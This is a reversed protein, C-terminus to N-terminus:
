QYSDYFTLDRPSIATALTLRQFTNNPGGSLTSRASLAINIKKILGPTGNATPNNTILGTGTSSSTTGADNIIDYTIKLQRINEVVPTPPGSNVQRMLQMNNNVFYTVMFVRYLFITGPVYAGGVKLSQINGAAANSQNFNLPDGDVFTLTGTALNVTTAEAIVFNNAATFLVLDGAQLAQIGNGGGPTANTPLVVTTTTGSSTISSIPTAPTPQPQAQSNGNGGLNLKNDLYTVTFSDSTVGDFIAGDNNDPLAYNLLNSPIATSTVFCQTPGCGRKAQISGAGNPLQVGGVPLGEGALGTDHTMQNIGARLNQQMEARQAVLFSVDMSKKLMLGGAGLVVLGISLSVLGEMLTFGKQSKNGLQM